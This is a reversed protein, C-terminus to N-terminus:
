HRSLCALETFAAEIMNHIASDGSLKEKFLAFVIKAIQFRQLAHLFRLMKIDNRVAQHLIMDVQQEPGIREVPDHLSDGATISVIEVVLIFAGSMQKLVAIAALRDIIIGIKKSNHAINM